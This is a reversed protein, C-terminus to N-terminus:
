SESKVRLYEEIVATEIKQRLDSSTPHAIDAFDGNPLTRAPMALFLREQGEIVKIDHVALEDDFTVSVIARLKGSELLRRIKVNTITM